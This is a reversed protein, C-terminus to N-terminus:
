ELQTWLRHGCFIRGPTKFGSSGEPSIYWANFLKKKREGGSSCNAEVRRLLSRFSVDNDDTGMLGCVTVWVRHLMISNTLRAQRSGESALSAAHLLFVAVVIPGHRPSRSLFLWISKKQTYFSSEPFDRPSVEKDNDLTIIMPRIMRHLFQKLLEVASMSPLNEDAPTQQRLRQRQKEKGPTKNDIPRSWESVEDTINGKSLTQNGERQSSTAARSNELTAVADSPLGRRIWYAQYICLITPGTGLSM